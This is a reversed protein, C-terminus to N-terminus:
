IHLTYLIYLINYKFINKIDIYNMYIDRYICM